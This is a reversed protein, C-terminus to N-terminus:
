GCLVWLADPLLSSLLVGCIDSVTVCASWPTLARMCVYVCNHPSPGVETSSTLVAVRTFGAGSSAM